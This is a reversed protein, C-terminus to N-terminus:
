TVIFILEFFFYNFFCELIFILYFMKKQFALKESFKKEFSVYIWLFYFPNLFFIHNGTNYHQSNEKLYLSSSFKEEFEKSIFVNKQTQNLPKTSCWVDAIASTRQLGGCLNCNALWYSGRPPSVSPTMSSRPLAYWCKSHGFCAKNLIRSLFNIILGWYDLILERRFSNTKTVQFFKLATLMEHTIIFKTTYRHSFPNNVWSFSSPISFSHM